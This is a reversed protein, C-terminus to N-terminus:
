GSPSPHPDNEDYYDVKDLPMVVSSLVNLVHGGIRKYYRAGLILATTTAADDDGQGIAAVLRDCRRATARSRQILELAEDRRSETFVDACRGFTAEVDRRIAQLTDVAEGSPLPHPRIDVIESLNKAYDGLREVDKVLSMLLLCYPADVDNGPVAMHTVVQRRIEQVLQNVQTDSAYIRQRDGGAQGGGFFVIGAELCMAYTLRLMEVFHEGLAHLPDSSRFIGLLERLM